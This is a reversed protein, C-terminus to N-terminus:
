RMNDLCFLKIKEAVSYPLLKFGREGDLKEMLRYLKIWMDAGQSWKMTQISQGILLM